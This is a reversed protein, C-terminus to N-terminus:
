FGTWKDRNNVALRLTGNDTHKYKQSPNQVPFGTTGTHRQTHNPWTQTIWLLSHFQLPALGWWQVSRHPTIPCAKDPSYIWFFYADTFSHIQLIKWLIRTWLSDSQIMLCWQRYRWWWCGAQCLHVKGREELAFDFDDAFSKSMHLKLIRKGELWGATEKVRDRKNQTGGLTHIFPWQKVM